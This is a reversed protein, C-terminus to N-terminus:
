QRRSEGLWDLGDLTAGLLDAFQTQWGRDSGQHGHLLMITGGSLDVRFGITIAGGGVSIWHRGGTQASLPSPDDWAGWEELVEIAAVTRDQDLESLESLWDEFTPALRVTWANV